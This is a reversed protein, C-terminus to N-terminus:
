IFSSLNWCKSGNGADLQNSPPITKSHESDNHNGLDANRKNDLKKSKRKIQKDLPFMDIFEAVWGALDDEFQSKLEEEEEISTSISPDVSPPPFVSLLAVPITQNIENEVTATATVISKNMARKTWKPIFTKSTKTQNDNNSISNNNIAVGAANNPLTSNNKRSSNVGVANNPQTNINNKALLAARAEDTRRDFEKKKEIQQLQYQLTKKGIEEVPVGNITGIIGTSSETYIKVNRSM